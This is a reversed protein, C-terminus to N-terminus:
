DDKVQPLASGDHAHGCTPITLWYVNNPHALGELQRKGRYSLWGKAELSQRHSRTTRMAKLDCMATVRATSPCCDMGTEFTAHRGYALAVALEVKGVDPCNFLATEWQHKPRPVVRVREPVPGTEVVGVRLPEPACAHAKTSPCLWLGHGPTKTGHPCTPANV